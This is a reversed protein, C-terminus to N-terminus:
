HQKIGGGFTADISLISRVTLSPVCITQRYTIVIFKM